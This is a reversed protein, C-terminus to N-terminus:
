FYYSFLASISLIFIVSYLAQIGVAASIDVQEYSSHLRREHVKNYQIIVDLDNQSQQSEDPVVHIAEKCNIDIKTGMAAGSKPAPFRVSTSNAIIPIVAQNNVTCTSDPKLLEVVANPYSVQIAFPAKMDTLIDELTLSFGSTKTQIDISTALPLPDKEAILTIVQETTITEYQETDFSLYTFTIPYTNEETHQNPVNLLNCKVDIGVFGYTNIGDFEFIFSDQSVYSIVAPSTGSM